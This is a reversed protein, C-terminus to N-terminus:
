ILQLLFVMYIGYSEWVRSRNIDGEISALVNERCFADSINRTIETKNEETWNDMPTSPNFSLVSITAEQPVRQMPKRKMHMSDKFNELLKCNFTKIGEDIERHKAVLHWSDLLYKGIKIEIESFDALNAVQPEHEEEQVDSEPERKNVKKGKAPTLFAQIKDDIPVLSLELSPKSKIGLKM